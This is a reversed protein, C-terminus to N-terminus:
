KSENNDKELMDKISEIASDLGKIRGINYRYEDLSLSSNSTVYQELEHKMEKLNKLLRKYLM